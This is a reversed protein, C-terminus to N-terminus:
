EGNFAKKCQDVFFQSHTFRIGFVMASWNAISIHLLLQASKHIFILHLDRLGIHTIVRVTHIGAATARTLAIVAPLLLITVTTDNCWAQVSM